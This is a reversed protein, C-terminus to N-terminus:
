ALLDMADGRILMFMYSLFIAGFAALCALNVGSWTSILAAYIATIVATAVAAVLLLIRNTSM